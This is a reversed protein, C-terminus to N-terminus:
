NKKEGRSDFFFFNLFKSYDRFQMSREEKNVLLYLKGFQENKATIDFGISVHEGVPVRSIFLSTSETKTTTVTASTRKLPYPSWKPHLKFSFCFFYFYILKKM